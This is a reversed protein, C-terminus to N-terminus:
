KGKGTNKVKVASRKMRDRAKNLRSTTDMDPAPGRDAGTIDGDIISHPALYAALASVTPYDFLTVVAINKHIKEKLKGCVEIIKLSNGGLDFFNDNIGIKDGGLVEMWIHAIIKEIQTKPAAYIAGLNLDTGSGKLAERDIKGHPTLPLTDLRFFRDPIMYAPLKDALYGRLVPVALAAEPPTVIYARIEGNESLSGNNGSRVVVAEKIMEHERLCSEIEGLEVRYGRIKVQHDIRGRYELNGDPLLRALDGTRYWRPSGESFIAQEEILSPIILFKEGTLEPQNLYGRAIGAGTICLEGLVGVPQPQLNGDVILVATNAIPKGIKVQRDKEQYRYLTSMVSGETVGYENIIELATNKEAAIELIVPNMSDGATTVVKLSQAEEVSLGELIAQFLQPVSIFHSVRHQIILQRLFDIDNAGKEGPFVLSAGATLPSFFSTIFGDFAYSFLQLATDGPGMQYIDQRYLLTNVVSKHAVIVGKPTGTTGSTYIIYAPDRPEVASVEQRISNDAEGASLYIIERDFRINDSLHDSVILISAGSDALMFNIRQAPYNLDIPLYVGGAKLIGLIAAAMKESPEVLLAVITSMGPIVGRAKLAATVWRAQRNLQDYTVCRTDMLPKIRHIDGQAIKRNTEFYFATVNSNLQEDKYYIFPYHLSDLDSYTDEELNLRSYHLFDDFNNAYSYMDHSDCDEVLPAGPQAHLRGWDLRLFNPYQIVRALIRRSEEIDLRSFYPLGAVQSIIVGANKHRKCYELLSFLMDDTPQPKILRLKVMKERHRQSFNAMDIMLYVYGFTKCILDVLEPTPFEWFYFECFHRSLDFGQWLKTYYEVANGALNYSDFTLMSTYPSISEIDRRIAAIDRLFPVPRNFSREQVSRCGGCYVCSLPCGRSTSIFSSSALYPNWGTVFIDDPHSLYIESNNTENQVYDIPTCIIKGDKKYTCNPIVDEGLSLKLLPLEGDGRIVYDVYHYQIINEHFYAASDGGMVVEISSDSTKVIRAMELAREMHPFWKMSIGVVKPKIRALLRELNRRLSDRTYNDDYWQCFAEIKHRRLYSALYLLGISATGTTDGLLLVPSKVNKLLGPSPSVSYHTQLRPCPVSVFDDWRIEPPINHSSIRELELLNSRYLDVVLPIFSELQNDINHRNGVLGIDNGKRMELTYISFNVKGRNFGAALSELNTKGDFYDLLLYAAKNLAVFNRKRTQLLVLEEGDFESDTKLYHLLQNDPFRFLYPNRSFCCLAFDGWKNRNIKGTKLEDRLYGLDRNLIIAPAGPNKRVQDEFLGHLTNAEPYEARTQNFEEMLFRKEEETRIDIRNVKDLPQSLVQDLMLIFHRIIRRVTEEKFFLTNYELTGEIKEGTRLFSFLTNYQTHTIYHKEQINEMLIATDSLTSVGQGRDLHLEELLVELPFSYNEMARSFTSKVQSLLEKFSCSHDISNRLLLVKNILRDEVNADQKYIPALLIVDNNETYKALLSALLTTLITNLAFDSGKSLKMLRSEIEGSFQFPLSSYARGNGKPKFDPPFGTKHLEGALRNLWYEKEKVKQAAAINLQELNVRENM